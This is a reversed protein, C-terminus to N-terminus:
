FMIRINHCRRMRDLPDAFDLHDLPGFDVVDINLRKMEKVIHHIKGSNCMTRVNWTSIRLAQTAKIKENICPIRNSVVQTIGCEEVERRRGSRNRNEILLLQIDDQNGSMNITNSLHSETTKRM